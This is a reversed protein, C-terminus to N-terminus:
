GAGCESLTKLGQRESGIQDPHVLVFSGVWLLPFRQIKASKM